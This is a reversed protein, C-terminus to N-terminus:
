RNAWSSDDYRVVEDVGLTHLFEAKATSGVAGVVRGAGLLRALQVAVHGVSSAAATVLVSDGPRVPAARPQPRPVEEVRLVEPGGYEHFRVRRM